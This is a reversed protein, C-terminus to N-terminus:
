VVSKRPPLYDTHELVREEPTPDRWGKPTRVAVVSGDPGLRRFPRDRVPKAPSGVCITWPPLSAFASSRAGLVAGEGVEVGPGVFADASVWAWAGVRIRCKLLLFDSRSFDHTGACLHAYQSVVAGEGIEIIGLNYVIADDGLQVRDALRLNWPIEVKVSPRILCGRGVRAGFCRLLFARWADLRRPSCAFLTARVLYWLARRAKESTTYWGADVHAVDLPAESTQPDARPDM